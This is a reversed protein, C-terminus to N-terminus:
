CATCVRLVGVARAGPFGVVEFALFPDAEDAAVGDIFRGVLVGPRAARHRGARVRTQFAQGTAAFAIALCRKKDALLGERSVGTQRLRSTASDRPDLPKRDRGSRCVSRTSCSTARRRATPRPYRTLRRRRRTIHRRSVRASPGRRSCLRRYSSTNNPSHKQERDNCQQDVKVPTFLRRDLPPPPPSSRFAEQSLCRYGM